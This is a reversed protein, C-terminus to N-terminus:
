MYGHQYRTGVQVNNIQLEGEDLRARGCKGSMSGAGLRAVEFFM